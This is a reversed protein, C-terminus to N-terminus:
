KFKYGFVVAPEEPNTFRDLRNAGYMNFSVSNYFSGRRETRPFIRHTLNIDSAGDYLHGWRSEAIVGAVARPDPIQTGAPVAPSWRKASFQFVYVLINDSNSQTDHPFGYSVEGGRPENVFLRYAHLLRYNASVIMQAGDANADDIVPVSTEISGDAESMPNAQSLAPLSVFTSGCIAVVIAKTLLM